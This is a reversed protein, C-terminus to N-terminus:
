YFFFNLFPLLFFFFFESSPNSKGQPTSPRIFDSSRGKHPLPVTEGVAPPRRSGDLVALSTSWSISADWSQRKKQMKKKKKTKTKKPKKKNTAANDDGADALRPGSSITHGGPWEQRVKSRHTLGSALTNEGNLAAIIPLMVIVNETEENKRELAV